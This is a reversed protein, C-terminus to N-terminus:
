QKGLLQLISDISLEVTFRELLETSNFPMRGWNSFHKCNLYYSREGVVDCYGKVAVGHEVDSLVVEDGNEYRITYGAERIEKLKPAVVEKIEKDTLM